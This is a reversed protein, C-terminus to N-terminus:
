ARALLDPRLVVALAFLIGPVWFVITLVTGVWFEPGLGRALFVGLPPLLIAALIAAPGPRYASM